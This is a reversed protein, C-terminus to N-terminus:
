VGDYMRGPNLIGAPDFVEKLRKTILEVGSHMPEFVNITAKVEDPARVLTAHGGTSAMVRRIETAGADASEPVELWILGGSWDYVADVSMYRRIATVVQFAKSPIASIRWLPKNSSPLVRLQRLEHWLGLSQDNELVLMEGYARLADKLDDLRKASVKSRNELRLATVSQGPERLEESWLRAAINPELHITGTVGTSTLLASSMAEVAIEESLGFLVITRTDEPMAHVRLSVEVLAALTGWSGTMIRKLDIGAAGRSVAGGSHFVEGTGAVAKVGLLNDSVGGVAIRRSGALNSCIVGGVTAGGVEDGFVAAMDVPEFGLMQGHEALERELDAVLCGAQVTIIREVPNYSRIGRLIHTSIASEGYRPRGFQRKTHGGIIEVATQSATAEGLFSALEWDAAPRLVSDLLNEGLENAAVPLQNNSLLWVAQKAQRM